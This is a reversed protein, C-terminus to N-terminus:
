YSREATQDGSISFCCTCTCVNRGQLITSFLMRSDGLKVLNKARVPRRIACQGCRPVCGVSQPVRLHRPAPPWTWCRGAVLPSRELIEVWSELCLIKRRTACKAKAKATWGCAGVSCSLFVWAFRRASEAATSLHVLMGSRMRQGPPGPRCRRRNPARLRQSQSEHTLWPCIM